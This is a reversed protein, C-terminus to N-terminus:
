NKHNVYIVINIYINTQSPRYGVLIYRLHAIAINLQTICNTHTIAYYQKVTLYVYWVSINKYYKVFVLLNNAM